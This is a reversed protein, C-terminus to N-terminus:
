TYYLFVINAISIGIAIATEEMLLVIRTKYMREAGIAAFMCSIHVKDTTEALYLQLYKDEAM